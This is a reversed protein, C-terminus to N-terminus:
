PELDYIVGDGSELRIEIGDIDGSHDQYWDSGVAFRMTKVQMDRYNIETTEADSVYDSWQFSGTSQIDSLTAGTDQGYYPPPNGDSTGYDRATDYWTLQNSGSETRWTVWEDAPADTDFSDEPLAQLLKGYYGADPNPDSDVTTWIEAFFEKGLPVGSDRRTRYRVSEIEGVTFPPLPAFDFYFTGIYFQEYNGPDPEDSNTQDDDDTWYGSGVAGDGSASAFGFQEAEDSGLSVRRVDGVGTNHRCQETYFGMDFAVSDTQIENAHDAPLWWAMACYRTTSNPFCDHGETTPDADLLLGGTELVSLTERLTGRHVLAEEQSAMIGSDATDHTAVLQEADGGYNEGSLVNDGDDHWIAVQIEDLLEVQATQVNTTLEDASGHEDADDAEPETHGHEGAQVLQGTMWVHGPNNFTHMGFTVEGMDGPKVDQMQVLPKGRYDRTRNKLNEGDSLNAFQKRFADELQQGSYGYHSSLTNRSHITDQIGDDDSDPYADISTNAMFDDVCEEPVAILPEMPVPFGVYDEPVLSPEGETMVVEWDDVGDGDIDSDSDDETTELPGNLSSDTLDDNEDDSWDSYHEQFAVM